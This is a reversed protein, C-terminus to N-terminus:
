IRKELQAGFPRSIIFKLLFRIILALLASLFAKEFDLYGRLLFDYFLSAFFCSLPLFLLVLPNFRDKYLFVLFVVILFFLSSVGLCQFQALDVFVGAMFAVIIAQKREAIFAWVLVLLLVLSVEGLFVQLISFLFVLTLGLLIM